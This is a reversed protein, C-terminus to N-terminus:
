TYQFAVDGSAIAQQSVAGADEEDTEGGTKSITTGSVSTNVQDVWVIPTTADIASTAESATPEAESASLEGDTRCGAGLALAVIWMVCDTTRPGRPEPRWGTRQM